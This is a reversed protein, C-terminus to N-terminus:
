PQPSEQMDMSGIKQLREIRKAIPPHTSFLSGKTKTSRAQHCFPDSIFLHATGRNPSRLPQAASSIKLLASALGSPNRTFHAGSTDALYERQRSIAFQILMAAIPALIAFILGVLMLIAQLQGGGSRNDSNRRGGFLSNWFFFRLMIDSLIAISGVMIGVITAFLIDRNKIHALEHAVVGQLEDRNLRQLLGTTFAVRGDEPNRGTAFANPSDDHIVYVRPMPLGAAIKIEEVINRLQRFESDHESVEKARNVKLVIDAGAFWSILAQISALGGAIGVGIWMAYPNEPGALAAGFLYGGVLMLTTVVGILLFSSRVNKGQLEQYSAM